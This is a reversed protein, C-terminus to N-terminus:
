FSEIRKRDILEKNNILGKDVEFELTWRHFCEVCMITILFQHQVCEVLETINTVPIIHKNRLLQGWPTWSIISIELLQWAIYFILLMSKVCRMFFYLFKIAFTELLHYFSLCKWLSPRYFLRLGWLIGVM